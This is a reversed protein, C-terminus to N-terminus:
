LAGSLNYNNVLIGFDGVDVIGDYNFDAAPDYGSNPVSMDGNYANVLAGFDAIDVTNDSTADGGM